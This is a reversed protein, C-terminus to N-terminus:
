EVPRDGSRVPTPAPVDIMSCQVIRVAARTERREKVSRSRDAIVVGTWAGDILYAWDGISQAWDIQSAAEHIATLAASSPRATRM